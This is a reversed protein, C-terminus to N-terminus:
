APRDPETRRREDWLGASRLNEECQALVRDKMAEYQVHVTFKQMTDSAKGKDFLKGDLGRQRPSFLIFGCVSLRSEKSTFDDLHIEIVGPVNMITQFFTRAEKSPIDGLAQVRNGWIAPHKGSSIRVSAAEADGIPQSGVGAFRKAIGDGAAHRTVLVRKAADDGKNWQELVGELSNWHDDEEILEKLAGQVAKDINDTTIQNDIKVNKLREMTKPLVMRPIVVDDNGARRCAAGISAVVKRRDFPESQGGVPKKVQWRAAGLFSSLAGMAKCPHCKLLGDAYFALMRSGLHNPDAVVVPRGYRHAHVIGISAGISERWMNVLMGDATEISTLDAEVIESPTVDKGLADDPWRRTPDIFSFDKEYKARVENRWRHLQDENCGTMPGALYIKYKERKAM